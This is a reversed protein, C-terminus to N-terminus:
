RCVWRTVSRRGLEEKESKIEQKQKQSIRHWIQQWQRWSQESSSRQRVWVNWMGAHFAGPFLWPAFYLNSCISIAKRRQRFNLTALWMVSNICLGIVNVDSEWRFWPAVQVRGHAKPSQSSVSARTCVVAGSGGTHVFWEQLTYPKWCCICLIICRQRKNYFTQVPLAGSDMSIHFQFHM